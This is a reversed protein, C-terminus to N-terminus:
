IINLLDALQLYLRLLSAREQSWKQWPFDTLIVYESHVNTAKPVWFLVRM